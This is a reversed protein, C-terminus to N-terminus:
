CGGLEVRLEFGESGESGGEPSFEELTACGSWLSTVPIDSTDKLCHAGGARLSAIFDIVASFEAAMLREAWDGISSCSGMTDKICRAGGVRLSALFDLVASLEAAM